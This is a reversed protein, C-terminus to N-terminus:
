KYKIDGNKLNSYKSFYYAKHWVNSMVNEIYYVDKIHDRFCLKAGDCIVHILRTIGQEM